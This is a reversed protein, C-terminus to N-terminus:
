RRLRGGVFQTFGAIRQRIDEFGRQELAEVVERQEFLRMGSGRVLAAEVTRLPTSRTRCTTFLAIRGGPTLVTKMEDLAAFPEEFLHLAAFCCVADFAGEQFPLAAANGHGFALQHIGAEAAEEVAREIMPRSADIGVVLGMDGVTRAFQRSFNGPGCAVDLVGDGPSLGLLLRAIRHEDTMGPGCLGKVMRALAPRWWREYIRSVVGSQMLSQVPTIAPLNDPLLELYGRGADFKHRHEPRLLPLARELANEVPEQRV